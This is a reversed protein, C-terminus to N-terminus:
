EFNEGRKKLAEIKLRYCENAYKLVEARCNEIQKEYEGRIAEMMTRHSENITNLLAELDAVRKLLHEALKESSEIERAKPARWRDILAKGIVAVAGGGLISVVTSGWPSDSIFM